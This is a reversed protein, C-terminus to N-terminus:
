SKRWNHPNLNLIKARKKNNIQSTGTHHPSFLLLISNDLM